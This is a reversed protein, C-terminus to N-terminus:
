EIPQLLGGIVKATNPPQDSQRCFFPKEFSSFLVGDALDIMRRLGEFIDV